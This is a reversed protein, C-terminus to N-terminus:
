GQSFSIPYFKPSTSLPSIGWYNSILKLTQGIFTFSEKWQQPLKEKNWTPNTLEHVVSLLTDGEAEFVETQIHDTGPSKCRKLKESVTQVESHSPKPTIPM